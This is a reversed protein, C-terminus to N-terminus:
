DSEGEWTRLALRILDHRSLMGVPVGSRVVPMHDIDHHLMRTLAQQVPEDESAVHVPASMVERAALSRSGEYIEELGDGLALLQGLM